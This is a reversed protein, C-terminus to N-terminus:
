LELFGCSPGAWQWTSFEMWVKSSQSHSWRHTEQYSLGTTLSWKDGPGREVTVLHGKSGQTGSDIAVKDGVGRSHGPHGMVAARSVHWSATHECGWTPDHRPFWPGAGVLSWLWCPWCPKAHGGWPPVGGLPLNPSGQLWAATPPGGPGARM